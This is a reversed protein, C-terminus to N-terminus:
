SKKDLPPSSDPTTSDSEEETEWLFHAYSGLVYCDNPSAQVAREMYVEAREKEREKEWILKGYLAMVEGNEDATGGAVIAREYCEMAGQVDGEVEHLFKGYNTLLLSNGPDLRLMERYYERIRQNKQGPVVIETDSKTRRLVIGPRNRVRDREDSGVHVAMCRRQSFSIRAGRTPYQLSSSRTLFNTEMENYQLPPPSSALSIM